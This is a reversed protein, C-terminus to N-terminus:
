LLSADNSGVTNDWWSSHDFLPLHPAAVRDLKNAISFFLFVKYCKVVGSIDVYVGLSIRSGKQGVTIGIQVPM